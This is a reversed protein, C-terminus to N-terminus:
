QGLWTCTLSIDVYAGIIVCLLCVFPIIHTYSMCGEVLEMVDLFDNNLLILAHSGVVGNVIKGRLAGLCSCSKNM